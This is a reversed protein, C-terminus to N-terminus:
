PALMGRLRASLAVSRVRKADMRVPEVFGADRWRKLWDRATRESVGLRTVITAVGFSQGVDDLGAIVRGLNAPLEGLPDVLAEPHRGRFSREVQGRMRAAAEAMRGCFEIWPSLEPDSRSGRENADYYSFHLGMQLSDYYGDLDQVYFEEVNLLGKADSRRRLAWTALARCTRGNGDEFPHITVFQYALIAAFLYDPLEDIANVAWAGLDAM